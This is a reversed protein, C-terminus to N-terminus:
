DQHKGSFSRVSAAQMDIKPMGAQSSNAIFPHLRTRSGMRAKGYERDRQLTMAIIRAAQTHDFEAIIQDQRLCFRVRGDRCLPEKKGTVGPPSDRTVIGAIFRCEDYNKRHSLM